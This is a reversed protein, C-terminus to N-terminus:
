FNVGNYTLLKDDTAVGTGLENVIAAIKQDGGTATCTASGVYGNAIQGNQVATLSSGAAVSGSVTFGTGTFTCNVTTTSAGVNAVAFGTFYGFNRDMILPLSVHATGAGPNIGDYASSSSNASNIQNVIAVLPQSASNLSVQGSGVFGGISNTGTGITGCAAPFPLFFTSSSHAAVAKTENCAAGPFGASPTYHVTVNTASAGTNQIQIGTISHFFNTSVLPMIPTNSADSGNFGNYALLAKASAKIQMIAAVLAQGTGSNTVTASGVYGVPLCSNTSQDFTASAGPALGSIADTCAGGSYAISVDANSSGANQVNYWTSYGFNNKMILPLSVTAAGASAGSYSAGGRLDSTLVNVIAALPKDSSVVASGSFGSSVASLPFYTKSSSPAISDSVSAAVSGNPAYYTISITAGIPGPDLNQLEFGSTYPGGSQAYAAIPSAAVIPLALVLSMVSALVVRWLRKM